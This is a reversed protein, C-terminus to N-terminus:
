KEWEAVKEAASYDFWRLKLQKSLLHVNHGTKQSKFSTLIHWGARRLLKLEPENTADVTALICDYGLTKAMQERAALEEAGHGKNRHEPRMFMSHSVAIQSCGPLDSLEYVCKETSLRMKGGKIFAGGPAM